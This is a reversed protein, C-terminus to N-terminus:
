QNSQNEQTTGTSEPAPPTITRSFTKRSPAPPPQTATESESVAVRVLLRSDGGGFVTGRTPAADGYDRGAATRIHGPAAAGGHTPDLGVWGLEPLLFEAWAHSAAARADEGAIDDPKIYGSVYRSPIGWIRGIAIMVHAYDQCVGKGTALIREIPSDVATSGPEYRLVSHLRASLALLSSLPDESRRIGHKKVFSELAPGPRAFRSPALFEWYRLSMDREGLANWASADMREPLAATATEVESIARVTARRHPKLINLLHCRNDFADHCVACVTAPKIRLKFSLVRQGSEESPHLRLLMASERVPEAYRFESIHEVRYRKPATM